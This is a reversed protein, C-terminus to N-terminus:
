NKSKMVVKQIVKLKASRSRRNLWVEEDTPTIPRKTLISGNSGHVKQKVWTESSGNDHQSLVGVNEGNGLEDDASILDLFTQKVIRDELSRFSIVVLRGGPSICDFCDYLSDKLINLEDNVAIRLAQFVRTATKIWGQRPTGCSKRELKMRMMDDVPRQLHFIKLNLDNLAGLMRLDLISNVVLRPLHPAESM